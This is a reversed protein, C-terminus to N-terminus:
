LESCCVIWRIAITIYIKHAYDNLIGDSSMGGYTKMSMNILHLM